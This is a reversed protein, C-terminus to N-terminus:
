CSCCSWSKLVEYLIYQLLFISTDIKNQKQGVWSDQNHLLSIQTMVCAIIGLYKLISLSDVNYWIWSKMKETYLKYGHVAKSWDPM